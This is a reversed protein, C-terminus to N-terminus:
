ALSLTIEFPEGDRHGALVIRRTEIAAFAAAYGRAADSLPAGNISEIIDGNKGGLRAAVSGPTVDILRMGTSAGDRTLDAGDKGSMIEQLDSTTVSHHETRAM